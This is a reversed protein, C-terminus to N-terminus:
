LSFRQKNEVPPSIKQMKIQRWQYLNQAMSTPSLKGGWDAVSGGYSGGKTESDQIQSIRLAAWIKTMVDPLWIKPRRRRGFFDSLFESKSWLFTIELPFIPTQKGGSAFIKPHQNSTMSVSKADHVDPVTVTKGEIPWVVETHGGKTEGSQTM